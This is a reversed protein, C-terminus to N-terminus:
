YLAADLETEQSFNQDRALSVINFSISQWLILM